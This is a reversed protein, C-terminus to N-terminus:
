VRSRVWRLISHERRARIPAGSALQKRVSEPPDADERYVAFGCVEIATADLEGEEPDGTYRHGLWTANAAEAFQRPHFPLSQPDPLVEVPYRLPFEGAWFPREWVFPLGLDEHIHVPTASFSRQLIGREWSAFAGWASPPDSVVLYIRESAIARTWTELITSPHHVAVDASCVVTVGPYSGVFVDGASVGASEALSGRGRPIVIMGPYLRGVLTRAADPDPESTRLVSIPDPADVYWITSVKAEM